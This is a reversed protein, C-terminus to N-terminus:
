FTKCEIIFDEFNFNNWIKFIKTLNQNKYIDGWLAQIKSLNFRRQMRDNFYYYYYNEFSKFELMVFENFPKEGNMLVLATLERETGM